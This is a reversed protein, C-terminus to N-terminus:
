PAVLGLQTRLAEAATGNLRIQHQGGPFIRTQSGFRVEGAREVFLRMFGGQDLIEAPFQAFKMVRYGGITEITYTTDLITVYNTAFNQAATRNHRYFRAKRGNADFAVRYGVEATFAPDPPAALFYFHVHQTVTGNLAAGFFNGPNKAVIDELNAAFPWTDFPLPTDPAPAVRLRDGAALFVQEPERTQNTTQYYMTSGPPFTRAQLLPTNPAPGYNAYDFTGNKSPYWRIDQIVDAMSRGDLTVFVPPTTTTVFSRCYTSLRPMLTYRLVGQLDNPCAYWDTGTWFEANFAFPQRVGSSVNVRLDDATFTGSADAVGSGVFSHYTYNNADAYTFSRLFDVPPNALPAVADTHAPIGLRDRLALWATTNFRKQHNTHQLDTYGGFVVGDREVFLRVRKLEATLAAPYGATFRLVRSDARTTIASSGDAVAACNISANDAIRNDCSFFRVADNAPNFGARYRKWPQLAASSQPAALDGVFVTNANSVVTAPDVWNGSMRKLDALTAAQRFNPLVRPKDTLGYRDTNGVETVQERTNLVSDAPFVADGLLAPPPGFDTPLGTNDPLPFARIEAIVEAMLRGTVNEVADRSESKSAGCYTSRQPETATPPKTSVVHFERECVTWANGTWYVTNRNYPQAVANVLTSRLENADYRGDADLKSSDGTFVRYSYNSASNYTFNRLSVFPGSAASAVQPAAVMSAVQAQATVTGASLNRDAFVAAVVQMAAEAPTGTASSALAGIAPLNGLTTSAVLAKTQEPPVNAATALKTVEIGVQNVVYAVRAAQADSSSVYDALPSATLGLQSQVDATADAVSSGSAAAREVVLTTLPSVFVSQAGAAGSPPAKMVFASGVAAGTDKDIATAPVNVIVNHKGAEATDVTISYRGDSDTPESTPEGMCAGDDNLDYCAIAGAIPGDAAIGSIVVTAPSAGGSNDNSSGGCAALFVASTVATLAALASPRFRTSTM